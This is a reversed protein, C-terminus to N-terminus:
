TSSFPLYAAGIWIWVSIKIKLSVLNRAAFNRPQFIAAAKCLDKTVSSHNMAGKLESLAGMLNQGGEELNRWRKSHMGPLHPIAPATVNVSYHGKPSENQTASIRQYLHLLIFLQLLTHIILM